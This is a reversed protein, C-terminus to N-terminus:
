RDQNSDQATGTMAGAPKLRVLYPSFPTVELALKDKASYIRPPRAKVFKLQGAWPDLKVRSGLPLAVIQQPNDLELAPAGDAVASMFSVRNDTVLSEGLNARTLNPLKKGYKALAKLFLGAEVLNDKYPSNALFKQGLADAEHEQEPSHKFDFLPLQQLSPVVMRDNFAFSSDLDHGLAAHALAHALIVALAAENPLADLLGRSILITHGITAVEVPTTPIIRCVFRPISFM